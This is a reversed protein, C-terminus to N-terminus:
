GLEFKRRKKKKAAINIAFHSIGLKRLTPKECVDVGGYGHKIQHILTTEKKTHSFAVFECQM